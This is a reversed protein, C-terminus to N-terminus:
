PVSAVVNREHICDQPVTQVPACFRVVSQRRRRRERQFGSWRRLFTTAIRWTCRLFGSSLVPVALTQLTSWNILWPMQASSTKNM